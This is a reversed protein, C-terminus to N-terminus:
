WGRGRGSDAARVRQPEGLAPEEVKGAVGPWPCRFSVGHCRLVHLEQEGLVHVVEADHAIDDGDTAAVGPIEEQGPPEGALGGVLLERGEGLLALLGLGLEGREVLLPAPHDALHLADLDSELTGAVVEAV